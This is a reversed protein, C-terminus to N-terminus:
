AAERVRKLAADLRAREAAYDARKERDAEVVEPPAKVLFKENALKRDLRAIEGDIRAIEKELRARAGDIDALGEVPIAITAERVVFQVSRPPPADAFRVAETRALIAIQAANAAIKRRTAEAAGAVVLPVRAAVPIGVESRASRAESILEVLLNIEDAAAEDAFDLRPWRSLMLLRGREGEAMRGWLEESIFPMFPHLLKLIV